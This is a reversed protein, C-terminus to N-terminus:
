INEKQKVRDEYWKIGGGSFKIKPQPICSRGIQTVIGDKKKVAFTATQKNM